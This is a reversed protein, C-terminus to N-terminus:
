RAVKLAVSLPSDITRRSADFRGTTSTRPSVCRRDFNASTSGSARTTIVNHEGGYLAEALTLATETKGVGSPGALMFVGVPKNPNELGARATQIRRAIMELAHSQGIIRNGLQSALNLVTDIENKVMRGAPIGTWESVVAAVANGDVAPIVLPQDGQLERLQREHHKLSELRAAKSEESEGADDGAGDTQEGSVLERIERRLPLVQSLLEQEQEWRQELETLKARQAELEGEVELPRTKVDIGLASERLLIGQEAELAEIRRRTDEVLAPTGHQSLAVRACTTDLLSVSKDPLQRDPIYRKSLKVAAELAEDLLEVGHHRELVPAVSRVMLLAQEESPEAVHVLQFRRTLAPDKEIYKKYEAWTTAAITRLKGRALAPKLLNAADGTGQAGGAGILTHVEDIFLIIPKPSSQVEEIVQRLRAEFEGKMSAGAQLLGVDLARVTADKLAPPVEGKAVRCAFGEVVATKGVGAEGTLVPNNQRRRMLVDTLQRIEDDRGVVPDIEGQRAKETLDVSFRELAEQKGLASPAAPADEASVSGRQQEAAAEPSNATLADFEDTLTDVKLKKFEGSISYLVNRLAPTKLWGVVMHGTRVRQARFMLSGYIWGREVSEEVHVSIDSISSSGRPLKDLAATIDRALKGPDVEFHQLLRHVDSDQQQLIQHIWHVLEVYPNGRMKCFLAAAEVTRYSVENLKNFLVERSIEAM